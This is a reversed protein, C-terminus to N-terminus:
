NGCRTLRTVAESRRGTVRTDGRSCLTLATRGLLSSSSTMAFVGQLMEPSSIPLQLQAQPHGHWNLASGVVPRQSAKTAHRISLPWKPSVGEVADDEGADQPKWARHVFAVALGEVDDVLLSRRRLARGDFRKQAALLPAAELNGATVGLLSPVTEAGIVNSDSRSARMPFILIGPTPSVFISGILFGTVPSVCRARMSRGSPNSSLNASTPFM